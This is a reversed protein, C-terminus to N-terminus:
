IRKAKTETEGQSYVDLIPCSATYWKREKDIKIPLKAMFQVRVEM